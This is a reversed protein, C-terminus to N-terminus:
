PGEEQDLEKEYEEVKRWALNMMDQAYSAFLGLMLLIAFLGYVWFKIELLIEALKEFM